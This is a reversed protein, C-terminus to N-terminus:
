FSCKVIKKFIYEKLVEWRRNDEGLRKWGFGDKVQRPKSAQVIWVEGPYCCHIVEITFSVFHNLTCVIQMLENRNAEIQLFDKSFGETWNIFTIKVSDELWRRNKNVKSGNWLLWILDLKYHYDKGLGGALMEGKLDRWSTLGGQRGEWRYGLNIENNGDTHFWFDIIHNCM